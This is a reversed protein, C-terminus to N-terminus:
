PGSKRQKSLGSACHNEKDGDRWTIDKDGRFRGKEKLSEAQHGRTLEWVGDQPGQKSSEGAIQMGAAEPPIEM